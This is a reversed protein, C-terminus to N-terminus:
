LGTMLSRTYSYTDCSRLQVIAGQQSNPYICLGFAEPHKQVMDIKASFEVMFHRAAQPNKLVDTLYSVIDRYERKAEHTITIRYDM